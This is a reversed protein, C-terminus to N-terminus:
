RGAEIPRVEVEGGYKLHPHTQAIEVAEDVHRATITFYGGLARDTEASKAISTQGEHRTVVRTVASLKDAGVLRGEAQRARAWDRYESIIAPEAPRAGAPAKRSFMLLMFQEGQAAAAPQKLRGSSAERRGAVMGGAFTVALGAAIGVIRVAKMVAGGQARVLGRRKLESVVRDELGPSPQPGQALSRLLTSETASLGEDRDDNM